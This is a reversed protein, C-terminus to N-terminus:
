WAVESPTDRPLNQKKNKSIWFISTKAFGKFKHSQKTKIQLTAVCWSLTLSLNIKELDPFKFFHWPFESFPCIDPFKMYQLSKSFYTIDYNENM